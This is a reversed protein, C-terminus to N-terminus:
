ASQLCPADKRLPSKNWALPDRRPRKQYVKPRRGPRPADEGKGWAYLKVLPRSSIDNVWDSVHLMGDKRLNCMFVGMTRPSLGIAEAVEAATADGALLIERVQDVRRKYVREAMSKPKYTRM